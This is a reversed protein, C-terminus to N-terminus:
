LMSPQKQSHPRLMLTIFALLMRISKEFPKFPIHRLKDIKRKKLV